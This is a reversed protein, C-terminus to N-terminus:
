HFTPTNATIPLVGGCEESVRFTKRTTGRRCLPFQRALDHPLKPDFRSVHLPQLHAGFRSFDAVQLRKADVRSFLTFYLRVDTRRM